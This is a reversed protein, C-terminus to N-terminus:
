SRLLGAVIGVLLSLVITIVMAETLTIGMNSLATVGTGGDYLTKEIFALVVGALGFLMVIIGPGIKTV